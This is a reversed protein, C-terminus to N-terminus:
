IRSVLEDLVTGAHDLVWFHGGGDIRHLRASPIVSALYAAAAAPVIRDSTGQWIHVPASIRSYDVHWPRAFVSLDALGGGVGQRLAEGTMGAVFRRAEPRALIARDPPALGLAIARISLGPALRFAAAALRSGAGLLRPYRQLDIFFRRFGPAIACPGVGGPGLMDAIPGMPSALGLATCRRGIRAALAVAYPSGGSVGLIAFRELLLADALRVLDEARSALAPAPDPASSGYGPRDPCVLHLGRERAPADAGAFMLRCAPAGHLALVPRGGPDGYGAVGVPRGDVILVRPETM